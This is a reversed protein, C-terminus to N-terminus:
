VRKRHQPYVLGAMGLDLMAIAGPEPVTPADVLVISTTFNFNLGTTQREAHFIDLYYTDGITMGPFAATGANLTISDPAPGHVGGLDITLIGNIFVLVDDDVRRGHHM